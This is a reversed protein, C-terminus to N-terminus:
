RRYTISDTHGSRQLIRFLKTQNFITLCDNLINELSMREYQIHFRSFVLDMSNINLFFDIRITNKEEEKLLIKSTNMKDKCEDKNGHTKQGNERM